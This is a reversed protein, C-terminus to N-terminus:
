SESPTEETVPAVAAVEEELAEGVVEEEEAPAVTPAAVTAITFDRDTITPTM